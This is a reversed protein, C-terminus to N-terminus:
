SRPLASEKWSLGSLSRKIDQLGTLAQGSHFCASTRTGPVQYQNNQERSESHKDLSSEMREDDLERDCWTLMSISFRRLRQQVRWEAPCLLDSHQLDDECMAEILVTYDYIVNDGM